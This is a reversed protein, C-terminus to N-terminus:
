VRPGPLRKRLAQWLSAPTPPVKSALLAATIAIGIAMSASRYVFNPHAQTHNSLIEFWAVTILIPSSLLAFQRRDFSGRHDRQHCYVALALVVVLPTGYAELGKLLMSVTPVLPYLYIHSGAEVGHIRFNIQELIDKAAHWHDALLWIALAFKTAWTGAYGAFWFATVLAAGQWPRLAGRALHVGPRRVGSLSDIVDEKRLIGTYGARPVQRFPRRVM